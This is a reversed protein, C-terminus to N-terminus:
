AQLVESPLEAFMENQRYISADNMRRRTTRIARPDIDCGLWRPWVLGTRSGIMQVKYQWFFTLGADDFMRFIQNVYSGGCMALVFSGPRLARASEQALWDYCDLHKRAYPPDAFVLDASNDALPLRQAHAEILM